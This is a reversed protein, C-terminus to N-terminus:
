YVYPYFDRDASIRYPNETSDASENESVDHEGYWIAHAHVFIDYINRPFAKLLLWLAKTNFFKYIFKQFIM